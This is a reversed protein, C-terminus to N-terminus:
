EQEHCNEKVSLRRNAGEISPNVAKKLPRLLGFVKIEDIMANQQTLSFDAATAM